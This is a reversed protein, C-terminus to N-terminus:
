GGDKFVEIKGQQIDQVAHKYGHLYISRYWPRHKKLNRSIGLAFGLDQHYKWHEEALKMAREQWKMKAGGFTITWVM